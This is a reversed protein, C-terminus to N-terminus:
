APPYTRKEGLVNLSYYGKRNFYDEGNTAPRTIALHTGDMYAVCNPVRSQRQIQRTIRAREQEDPWRIYERGVVDRVKTAVLNVIKCVTARGYAFQNSLVQYSAGHAVFYLFILLRHRVPVPLRFNTPTGEIHPGLICLLREAAQPSLHFSAKFSTEAFTHNDPRPFANRWQPSRPIVYWEGTRGGSEIKAFMLPWAQLFTASGLSAILISLPVLIFDPDM